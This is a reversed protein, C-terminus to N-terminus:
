KQSEQKDLQRGEKFDFECFKETGTNQWVVYFKRIRKTKQRNLCSLLSHTFLLADAETNKGENDGVELDVPQAEM